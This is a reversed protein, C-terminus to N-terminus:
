PRDELLEAVIRALELPSFPKALFRDAGAAAATDRDAAHTRATLMVVRTHELGPEIRLEELVQLGTRGPMM